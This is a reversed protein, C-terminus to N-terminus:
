VERNTPLTLHTYSVTRLGRLFKHNTDHAHPPPPKFPRGLSWRLRRSFAYSSHCLFGRASGDVPLANYRFSSLSASDNADM